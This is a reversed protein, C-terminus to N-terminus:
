QFLNQLFAKVMEQIKLAIESCIKSVSPIWSPTESFLEKSFNVYCHNSFNSGLSIKSPVAPFIHSFIESITSPYSGSHKRLLTESNQIESQIRWPTGSLIRSRFEPIFRQLCDSIANESFFRGSHKFYKRFFIFFNRFSKKSFHFFFYKISSRCFCKSYVKRPTESPIVRSSWVKSSNKM